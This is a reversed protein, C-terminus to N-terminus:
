PTLRSRTCAQFTFPDTTDEFYSALVFTLAQGTLCNSDDVWKATASPSASTSANTLNPVLTSRSLVTGGHCHVRQLMYRASGDPPVSSPDAVVTYASRYPEGSPTPSPAATSASYESWSLLVVNTTGSCATGADKGVDVTDASAIDRDFYSSLIAAGGSHDDRELTEKGNSLFVLLATSLSGMVITLIAASLLLEVLTFGEESLPPRM